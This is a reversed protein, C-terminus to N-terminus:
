AISHWVNALGEHCIKQADHVTDVDVGCYTVFCVSQKQLVTGGVLKVKFEVIFIVDRTHRFVVARKRKCVFRYNGM